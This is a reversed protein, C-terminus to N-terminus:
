STENLPWGNLNWRVVARVHHLVHQELDRERRLEMRLGGHFRRNRQMRLDGAPEILDVLDHHRRM